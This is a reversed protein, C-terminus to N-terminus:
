IPMKLIENYAQIVKDRVNVVTTVVLEANSAATVVDIMDAEGALAKASNAENMNSASEVNGLAEGVLNSFATNSGAEAKDAVGPLAEQASKLASAYANAADLSKIAM